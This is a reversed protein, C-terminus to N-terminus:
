VERPTSAGLLPEGAMFAQATRTHTHTHARLGWPSCDVLSRWPIKYALISSHTTM